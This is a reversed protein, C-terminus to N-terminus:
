FGGALVLAASDASASPVLQVGADGHFDTFFALVLAAVATAAGVGLLVDTTPAMVEVADRAEILRQDEDDNRDTRNLSDYEDQALLAVVGTVGGTLLLSVSTSLM